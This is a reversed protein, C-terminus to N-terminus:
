ALEGIPLLAVIMKVVKPLMSEFIADMLKSSSLIFYVRLPWSLVAGSCLLAKILSDQDSLELYAFGRPKQTEQDRPIKVNVISTDPFAEKIQQESADFPLNGIFCMFPGVTPLRAYDISPPPPPANDRSPRGSSGRVFNRDYDPREMAAAGMAISSPLTMM